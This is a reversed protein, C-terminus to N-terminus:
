YTNYINTITNSPGENLPGPKEKLEHVGSKLVPELRSVPYLDPNEM